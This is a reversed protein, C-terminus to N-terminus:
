AAVALKAAAPPPLAMPACPMAPADTLGAPLVDFWLVSRRRWCIVRLSELRGGRVATAGGECQTDAVHLTHAEARTRSVIPASLHALPHEAVDACRLACREIRLRGAVHEVCAALRASRVDLSALRCAAHVALGRQAAAPVVLVCGAAGSLALPWSIHVDDLAHEGAEVYISQGPASAAVAALLTAYRNCGPEGWPIRPSDAAAGGAAVVLRLRTDAAVKRWRQTRPPDAHSTVYPQTSEPPRVRCVAAAAFLDPLPSLFRFINLLCADDLCGLTASGGPASTPADGRRRM